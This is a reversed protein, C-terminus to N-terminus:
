EVLHFDTMEMMKNLSYECNFSLSIDIDTIKIQM